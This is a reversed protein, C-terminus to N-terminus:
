SVVVPKGHYTYQKGIEHYCADGDQNRYTEGDWMMDLVVQVYREADMEKRLNEHAAIGLAAEFEPNTM